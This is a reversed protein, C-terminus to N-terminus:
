VCQLKEYVQDLTMVLTPQQIPTANQQFSIQALLTDLNHGGGTMYDTYAQSFLICDNADALLKSDGLYIVLKALLAIKHYSDWMSPVFLSPTLESGDNWDGSGELIPKPAMSKACDIFQLLQKPRALHRDLDDIVVVSGGHKMSMVRLAQQMLICKPALFDPELLKQDVALFVEGAIVMTPDAGDGVQNHPGPNHKYLLQLLEVTNEFSHHVIIVRTDHNAVVSGIHDAFALPQRFIYVNDHGAVNMDISPVPSNALILIRKPPAEKTRLQPFMTYLRASSDGRDCQCLVVNACYNCM